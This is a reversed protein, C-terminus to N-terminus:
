SKVVNFNITEPNVRGSTTNVIIKIPAFGVTLGKAELIISNGDQASQLVEVGQGDEVTFSTIEDGSVENLYPTFDIPYYDVQGLKIDRTECDDPANVQEVNYNFRNYYHYGFGHGSGTPLYTDTEKYTMESSFLGLYAKRAEARTDPNLPKGFAPALTKALNLTVAHANVDNLGSDQNPNVDNFGDSRIYSLCLGLNQWSLVMMDLRKVALKVEEPSPKSTIGSIVLEEYASLVIDNKTIM